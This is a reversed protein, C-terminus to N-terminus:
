LEACQQYPTFTNIERCFCGGTGLPKTLPPFSIISNILGILFFILIIQYNQHRWKKQVSAVEELAEECSFILWLDKWIYQCGIYNRKRVSLTDWHCLKGLWINCHLALSQRKQCALNWRKRKEKNLNLSIKTTKNITSCFQLDTTTNIQICM